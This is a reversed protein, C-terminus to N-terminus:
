KLILAFFKGAPSALFFDKRRLDLLDKPLHTQSHGEPDVAAASPIWSTKEEKFM